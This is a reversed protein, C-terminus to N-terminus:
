IYFHSIKNVVPIQIHHILWAAQRKWVTGTARVHAAWSDASPIEQQQQIAFICGCGDTM